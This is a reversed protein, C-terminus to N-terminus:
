RSVEGCGKTDCGYGRWWDNHKRRDEWESQEGAFEHFNGERNDTHTPDVYRLSKDWKALWANYRERFDKGPNSSYPRMARKPAKEAEEEWGSEPQGGAGKWEARGGQRRWTGDDTIEPKVLPPTRRMDGSVSYTTWAGGFVDTMNEFNCISDRIRSQQQGVAAHVYSVDPACYRSAPCPNASHNSWNHGPTWHRPKVAADEWPAPLTAPPPLSEIYITQFEPCVSSALRQARAQEQLELLRTPQELATPRRGAASPRLWLVAATLAFAGCVAGARDVWASARRKAKPILPVEDSCMSLRRRSRLSMKKQGVVFEKRVFQVASEAAATPRRGFVAGLPYIHLGGFPERHQDDGAQEGGDDVGKQSHGGKLAM